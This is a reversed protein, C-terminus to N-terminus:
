RAEMQHEVEGEGDGRFCMDDLFIRRHKELDSLTLEATSQISVVGDYGNSDIYESLSEDWGELFNMIEDRNESASVREDSFVIIWSASFDENEVDDRAGLFVGTIVDGFRDYARKVKEKIKGLVKKWHDNFEDSFSPRYYRAALWTTLQTCVESSLSFPNNPSFRELLKRTFLVRERIFFGLCKTEGDVPVEVHLVRSNSARTLEPQVRDVLSFGIFEVFPENGFDGHALDCSQTALVYFDERLEVGGCHEQLLEREVTAWQLWGNEIIADARSSVNVGM